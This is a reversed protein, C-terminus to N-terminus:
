IRLNQTKLYFPLSPFPLYVLPHLPQHQQSPVPLALQIFHLYHLPSTQETDQVDDVDALVASISQDPNKNQFSSKNSNCPQAIVSSALLLFSAFLLSFQKFKNV